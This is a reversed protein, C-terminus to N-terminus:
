QVGHVHSHLPVLLDKTFQFNVDLLPHDFGVGCVGLKSAQDLRKIYALKILCFQRGAVRSGSLPGTRNSGGPSVVLPSSTVSFPKRYGVM